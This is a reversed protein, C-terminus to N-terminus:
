FPAITPQLEAAVAKPFRVLYKRDDILGGDLKTKLAEYATRADQPLRNAQSALDGLWGANLANPTTVPATSALDHTFVHKVIGNFQTVAQVIKEAENLNSPAM